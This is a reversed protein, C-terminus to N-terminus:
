AVLTESLSKLALHCHNPGFGFIYSEETEALHRKKDFKPADCTTAIFINYSFSQSPKEM